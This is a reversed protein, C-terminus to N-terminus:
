EVSAIIQEVSDRTEDSVFGIEELVDVIRRYAEFHTM